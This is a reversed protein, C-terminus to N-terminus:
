LGLLRAAGAAGAAGATEATTRTPLQNSIGQSQLDFSVWPVQCGEDAPLLRFLM